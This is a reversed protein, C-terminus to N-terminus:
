MYRWLGELKIHLESKVVFYNMVKREDVSQSFPHFEMPGRSSDDNGRLRSDLHHVSDTMGNFFPIWTSSPDPYGSERTHRFRPSRKM